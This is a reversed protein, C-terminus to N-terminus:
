QRREALQARLRQAIPHAPERQLVADILVEAQQFRGRAPDMAYSALALSAEVYRFGGVAAYAELLAREAADHSTGSRCYGCM